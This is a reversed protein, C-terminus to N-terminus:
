AIRTFIFNIETLLFDNIYSTSVSADKRFGHPIIISEKALRILSIIQSYDNPLQKADTTFYVKITHVEQDVDPSNLLAIHATVEVQEVDVYITKPNKLYLETGSNSFPLEDSTKFNKLRLGKIYNLIDSRM